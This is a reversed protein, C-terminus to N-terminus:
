SLDFVGRSICAYIDYEKYRYPIYPFIGYNRTHDGIMPMECRFSCLTAFNEADEKDLSAFLDVTRKTLSRPTNIEGALLQSWLVQM